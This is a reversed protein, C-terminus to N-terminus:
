QVELGGTYTSVNGSGDRLIVTRAGQAANNAVTVVFSIGPKGSTSTVSKVDTVTIDNPGGLSVQLSGNLGTGFMIVRMQSGRQVVAGTNSASGGTSNVSAVGLLQANIAASTDSPVSIDVGSTTGGSGVNVVQAKAPDDASGTGGGGSGGGAGGSNQNSSSSTGGGGCAALAMSLGLILIVATKNM